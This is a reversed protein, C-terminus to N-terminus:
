CMCVCVCVEAYVGMGVCVACVGEKCWRMRTLTWSCSPLKLVYMCVCLSRCVCGYWCVVCVCRGQVLGDKDTDLQVFAAEYRQMDAPLAPPLSGAGIPFAHTALALQTGIKGRM